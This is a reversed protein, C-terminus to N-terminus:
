FQSHRRLNRFLPDPVTPVPTKQLTITSSRGDTGIVTLRGSPNYVLSSGNEFKIVTNDMKDKTNSIIKGTAELGNPFIKVLNGDNDSVQYNGKSGIVKHGSSLQFVDDDPRIKEANAPLVELKPLVLILEPKQEAPKIVNRNPEREAAKEPAANQMRNLELQAFQVQGTLISGIEQNDLSLSHENEYIEKKALNYEFDQSM